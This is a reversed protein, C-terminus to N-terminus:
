RRSGDMVATALLPPLADAVAVRYAALGLREETCHRAAEGLRAALGPEDCLAALRRAAEATDPEAWNQGTYTSQPDDAPVLRVPVLAAAEPTMFDLNGSWATAVVPRGLRMAEALVLGFGEARHLSLVADSAAILAALEGRGLVGDMVRINRAEGIAARLREAAWPLPTDASVKILLLVDERDGFAKRFARIAALPNKREFGSGYHLMTLVVFARDPLGFGARDVAAPAPEPVPHPVVRVPRRTFPRVADACFRSPTWVEDLYALDRRWAPPIVPLEWAWFGVVRQGATRRRGLMLRAYPTLPPNLHLLVVGGPERGETGAPVAFELNAPAFAETLDFREVPYGLRELADACLRAGEGIGSANRFLGAVTVGAGPVLPPPTNPARPAGLRVLERGVCRRLPPPLRYWAARLWKLRSGM